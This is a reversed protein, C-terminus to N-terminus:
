RRPAVIASSYGIRNVCAQDLTACAYINHGLVTGRFHIDSHRLKCLAFRCQSKPIFVVHDGAKSVRRSVLYIM